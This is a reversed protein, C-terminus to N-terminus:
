WPSQCHPCNSQSSSKFWKYLCTGHFRKRCTRCGLRPLQGNTPQIISYCILCEEQGEFEKDVNRKWLSIAEAVSGNQMRLFASISLLWKRLRGESVGVKRRCELEPPRLPMSAPLRVALELLHGDEVEMVAIVERSTANARVSLKDFKGFASAAETVAALEAALLQGSVAVSTYRETAAATGRDRLDAFWLRASAPLAQLAAAYLLAAFRQAQSHLATGPEAAGGPFPGLAALQSAFGSGGAGATPAGGAAAAAGRSASGSAGSSDHRSSGSPWDLPLLLLLSDLLSPVLSHGEKLTQALLRRGHSDAPAALLHTLLLAWGSFFAGDGAAARSAVAAALEPRVGVLELAAAADGGSSGAAGAQQQQEDLADEDVAEAASLSATLEPQQLIAAFAAAAMAPPAIGPLSLALLAGLADVGTADMGASARDVAALLFARDAARLTTAVHQSLLQWAAAGTAAGQQVGQAGGGGMRAALVAAAQEGSVAAAAAMSGSTVFLQLMDSCAAAEAAQWDRQGLTRSTGAAAAARTYAQLAPLLLPLLQSDLAALQSQLSASMRATVHRAKDSRELVGKLKLRRFFQLAVAPSQMDAGVAIESAGACVAAAVRAAAAALAASCQAFADRLLELLISWHQSTLQQSCYAVCSHALGAVAAAAAPPAAAASGDKRAAALAAKLGRAQHQLLQLLAAQEEPTCCGVPPMAASAAARKEAAAAAAAAAASQQQAASPPPVSGPQRPRLRSAETERLASGAASGSIHIAYSPPQVSVDVVVVEAEAWSGDQQRYWVADGKAYSAAAAQQQQQQEAAAAAAAAPSPLRAAAEAGTHCPFCAVAAQLLQLTPPQGAGGAAAALGVAAPEAATAQECLRQSLEALGSQQLLSSSQRFAPAVIPLVQQLLAQSLQEQSGPATAASFFSAAAATSAAGADVAAQLLACLAAAHASTGPAAAAAAKLAPQLLTAGASSSLHWLLQGQHQTEAAGPEAQLAALMDVAAGAGAPSGAPLLANFGAAAGVAALFIAQAASYRGSSGSASSSSGAAAEGGGAAQQQHLLLGHLLQQELESGRCLAALLLATVDAAAAAAAPSPHAALTGEVAEQAASLFGAQQDAPAHAILTGMAATRQWLQRAATCVAGPQLEVEVSEADSQDLFTSAAHEDSSDGGAAAAEAEEAEAAAEQLLLGFAAAALQLRLGQVESSPSADLAPSLLVGQLVHLVPVAPAAAEAAGSGGAEAALAAAEHLQELLRGLVAAQAAPSVLSAGSGGGALLLALLRALHADGAQLWAGPPGLAMAAAKDLEGSAAAAAALDPHQGSALYELLLEAAAAHQQQVLQQLVEGLKRAPHHVQPLCSLLLNCSAAAAEPQREESLKRLISEITFSASQHLRLSAFEDAAAAATGGAGEPAAAAAAAAPPAPTAADAAAHQPFAKLLAALLSSAAPPAVGGRVEPLLLAVLPRAVASGLVAHPGPGTAADLAAVLAAARDFVESGGTSGSAQKDGAGLAAQLAAAACSGVVGLLQELRQRSSSSAAPQGLKGTVGTLVAEAEAAQAQQAPTGLAAPLLQPPLAEQLLDSCYRQGAAQAAEGGETAPEAAGQGSTVAALHDAKLLAYLLCDQFAEAAARRAKQATAPLSALGQWIADLLSAFFAPQPGLTTEPLLSVLPLLAPFSSPASGYCGHRLFAWLRPLFAKQMNVHGWSDPFARAYSLLMAWLAEHTGPEKDSLAGLMAPAAAPMAPALLEPRWAAAAAVLLYAQRRVPAAKSQLVAKYFASQQLQAGIGDLLEQEAPSRPEGQSGSWSGAGSGGGGGGSSSSSGDGSEALDLLAALAACTAALVREHRDQLEEISEKKSDGLSQPTSALNDALLQLVEARCFLVADRRKAAAPFAAAFAARAAAAAEGHGDSQALWLSPVLSRLLPAIGRGVAAALAASVHSAETRVARSNDLVLRGYLYAWCPLAAQLDAAPKEKALAKLAQLAKLKTTADRKSLKQLQQSLEGDLDAPIIAGARVAAPAPPEGGGSGGGARPAAAAVQGIYSAGFAFGGTPTAGSFGKFGGGRAAQLAEAAKASSFHKGRDGKSGGM